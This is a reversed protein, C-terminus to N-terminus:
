DVGCHENFWRIRPDLEKDLAMLKLKQESVKNRVQAATQIGQFGIDTAVTREIRKLTIEGNKIPTSLPKLVVGPELEIQKPVAAKKPIVPAKPSQEVPKTPTRPKKKAPLSVEKIEEEEVPEPSKRKKPNEEKKKEKKDKEEDGKDISAMLSVIDKRRQKMKHLEEAINQTTIKKRLKLVFVPGLKAKAEKSALWHTEKLTEDNLVCKQCPDSHDAKVRTLFECAILGYLLQADSLTKLPEGLKGLEVLVVEQDKKSLDSFIARVDLSVKKEYGELKFVHPSDRIVAFGPTITDAASNDIIINNGSTYTLIRGVPTRESYAITMLELLAILKAYRKKDNKQLLKLVKHSFAIELIQLLKEAEELGLVKETRTKTQKDVEEEDEDEEEHKTKKEKTATKKTKPQIVKKKKKKPKKEEEEDEEEEEEEEDDTNDAAFLLTRPKKVIIEEEETDDDAYLLTRPKKITATAVAKM